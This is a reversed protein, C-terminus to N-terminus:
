PFNANQMSHITKGDGTMSHVAFIVEPAWQERPVAREINQKCIRLWFAGFNWLVGFKNQLFDKSLTNYGRSMDVFNLLVQFIYTRSEFKNKIFDQM